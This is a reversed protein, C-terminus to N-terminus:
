RNFSRYAILQTSSKIAIVCLILLSLGLVILGWESMTPVALRTLTATAVVRGSVSGIYEVYLTGNAQLTASIFTTEACIGMGPPITETFSYVDGVVSNFTWNGSCTLEVYTVDINGCSISVETQYTLPGETVIGKWTGEIESYSCQAINQGITLFSFLLLSCIRLIM